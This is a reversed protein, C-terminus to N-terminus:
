GFQIDHANKFRLGLVSVGGSQTGFWIKGDPAIAIATIWSDGLGHARTYSVWGADSIHTVGETTGIWASGNPEFAIATIYDGALGDRAAYIKFSQKQAAFAASYVVLASFLALAILHFFRM